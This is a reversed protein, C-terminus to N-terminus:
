ADYAQLEIQQGFTLLGTSIVDTGIWLQKVPSSTARAEALDRTTPEGLSLRGALEGAALTNLREIAADLARVSPLRLGVHSARYPREGQLRRFGGVAQALQGDAGLREALSGELALQEPEAQSAFMDNEGHDSGDLRIVIYKGYPAAEVEYWECGLAEVLATVLREEGPRHAFEVHNLRL